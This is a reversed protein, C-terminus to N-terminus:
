TATLGHNSENGAYPRVAVYYEKSLSAGLNELVVTIEKTGSVKANAKTAKAFNEDTIPKDSYRIDYSLGSVFVNFKLTATGNELDAVRLYRINDVESATGQPGDGSSSSDGGTSSSTDDPGPTPICSALLVSTLAIILALAILLIRKRM